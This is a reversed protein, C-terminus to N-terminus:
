RSRHSLVSYSDLRAHSSIQKGGSDDAAVCDLSGCQEEGRLQWSPEAEPIAPRSSFKRFILDDSFRKALCIRGWPM